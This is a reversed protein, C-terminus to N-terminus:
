CRRNPSIKWALWRKRFPYTPWLKPSPRTRAARRTRRRHKRASRSFASGSFRRFRSPWPSIPIAPSPRGSHRASGPTREPDAVIVGVGDALRETELDVPDRLAERLFSELSAGAERRRGPGLSGAMQPNLSVRWAGVGLPAVSYLNGWTAGLTTSLAGAIEPHQSRVVAGDPLGELEVGPLPARLHRIFAELGAIDSSHLGSSLKGFEAAVAPDNGSASPEFAKLAAASYTVLFTRAAHVEVSLQPRAALYRRAAEVFRADHGLDPVYVSGSAEEPGTTVSVRSPPYWASRVLLTLTAVRSEAARQRLAPQDVAVIVTHEDAEAALGAGTPSLALTGVLGLCGLTRTLVRLSM